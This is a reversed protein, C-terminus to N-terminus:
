LYPVVTIHYMKTTRHPSFELCKNILALKKNEEDSPSLSNSSLLITVSVSNGSFCLSRGAPINVGFARGGM